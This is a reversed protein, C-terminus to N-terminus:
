VESEPKKKQPLLEPMAELTDLFNRSKFYVGIQEDYITRVIKKMLHKTEKKLTLNGVRHIPVTYFTRILKIHTPSLRVMYRDLHFCRHCLFGIYQFSFGFEGDTAGCNACAHLTPHIGGVRLMKWEVFLTIAEADYEENIAHLAENLLTYIGSVREDQDTLKDIIEVVYSAYATAELNERIFRMSEIPEGQSLTGMGRGKRVLFAGHTFPQTVAALKSRPKKAGRAMVTIKGAEETLLTVIKHSEGYPMTRIVIGEWKSLLAILRRRKMM